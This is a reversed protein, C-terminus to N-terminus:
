DRDRYLRTPPLATLGGGDHAASFSLAATESDPLVDGLTLAGIRRFRGIPGSLAFPLVAGTEVPGDVPLVGVLVPTRGALYLWLSSFLREGPRRAPVLFHHAPAGNGSSALLFDQDRGPGYADAIKVTLTPVEDGTPLPLAGVRM